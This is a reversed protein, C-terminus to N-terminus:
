TSDAKAAEWNNPPNLWYIGAWKQNDKSCAIEYEIKICTKGSQCNELWADNFKLCKGDPMFGSPVYHNSRSGKDSYITFPTFGEPAAASKDGSTEGAAQKQDTSAEANQSSVSQGESVTKNCGSFVLMFFIMGSLTRKM